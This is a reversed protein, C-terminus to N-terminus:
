VIGLEKVIDIAKDTIPPLAIQRRYPEDYPPGPETCDYIAVSSVGPGYGLSPSSPDLPTTISRPIIVIDRAPQFKVSFAWMIENLNRIDITDDFILLNKVTMGGKVAKMAMGVKEVLGTRLAKKDVSVATTFSWTSLVNVDKVAPVLAKLQTLMNASCMLHFMNHGESPERGMYLYYFMPNRRRTVAQVRVVPTYYCGSYYGPFESFPGEFEREEWDIMGEIVIEATAPVFLDNTECKVVKLPEGTFAGWYDWESVDNAAPMQSLMYFLPDAGIVIAIPINKKAWVYKSFILGEHQNMLVLECIRRKGKLQFRRIAMNHWDSDLDKIISIGAGIYPPNEYMGCYPIPLDTMDIDDGFMKVEKCPGDGVVEPKMPKGNQLVNAIHAVPDKVPLGLSWMQRQLTTLGETFVCWGPYGWVNEYLMAPGNKEAIMKSVYGFDDVLNMERQNRSLQGQDELFSVWEGLSRFPFGASPESM